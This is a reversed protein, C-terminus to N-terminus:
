YVLDKLFSTKYISRFPIFTYKTESDNTSSSSWFKLNPPNIASNLERIQM